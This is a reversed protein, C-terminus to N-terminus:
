FGRNVLTKDMIRRKSLHDDDSTDDSDISTYPNRKQTRKFSTKPLVSAYNPLGSIGFNWHYYIQFFIIDWAGIYLLM